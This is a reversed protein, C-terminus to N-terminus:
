LKKNKSKRCCLHFAHFHAKKNRYDKGAFSLGTKRVVLCLQGRVKKYWQKNQSLRKYGSRCIAWWAKSCKTQIQQETVKRHKLLLDRLAEWWQRNSWHSLTGLLPSPIVCLTTYHLLSCNVATTKRFAHCCICHWEKLGVLGCLHLLCM